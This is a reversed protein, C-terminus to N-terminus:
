FLQDEKTSKKALKGLYYADVDVDRRHVTKPATPAKPTSTNRLQQSSAARRQVSQRQKAGHPRWAQDIQENMPVSIM